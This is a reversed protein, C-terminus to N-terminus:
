WTNFLRPWWLDLNIFWQICTALLAHGQPLSHKKMWDRCLVSISPAPWLPEGLLLQLSSGKTGPSPRPFVWYPRSCSVEDTFVFKWLSKSIFRQGTMKQTHFDVRGDKVLPPDESKAVFLIDLPWWREQEQRYKIQVWPKRYFRVQLNRKPVLYNGLYTKFSNRLTTLDLYEGWFTCMLDDM